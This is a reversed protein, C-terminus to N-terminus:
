VRCSLGDERRVNGLVTLVTVACSSLGSALKHNLRAPLQRVAAGRGFFM